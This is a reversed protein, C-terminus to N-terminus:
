SAIRSMATVTIWKWWKWRAFVGKQRLHYNLFQIPSSWYYHIPQATSYRDLWYISSETTYEHHPHTGSTRFLPYDIFVGLGDSVQWYRKVIGWKWFKGLEWHYHTSLQCWEDWNGIIHTSLQCWEDWGQHLEWRTHTNPKEREREWGDERAPTHWRIREGWHVRHIQFIRQLHKLVVSAVHAMTLPAAAPSVPHSSSSSWQEQRLEQLSTVGYEVVECKNPSSEDDDYWVGRTCLLLQWPVHPIIRNTTTTTSDSKQYYYYDYQLHLIM